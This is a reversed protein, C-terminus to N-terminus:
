FLEFLKAIFVGYIAVYFMGEWVHVQQSIGSIVFLGTSIILVPLGIAVVSPGLPITAFLGPVGVVVLLNFINSGFINGLATDSKGALTAKVSVFLEPLSTGLAVATLTLVGATFGFLESMTLVSEILYHAGLALAIVGAGVATFDRVRMKTRKAIEKVKLEARKMLEKEDKHILVYALYFGYSTILILSEVFNIDGDYALLFFLMTTSALLPLDLDILDKDVVMKKGVIASVGVILLINAINSGIANASVIEPAGKWVAGLGAVLEPLSTGLAIITVGVIFPSLGVAVGINEAGGILLDAGKVLVALAVIFIVVWLVIEM